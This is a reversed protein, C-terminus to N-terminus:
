LRRSIIKSILKYILNCLSIPYFDAFTIPKECKLILTFFTPNTLKIIKGDNGSEEVERLLDDRVLEFFFMFFEIPWECPGPSKDNKFIKLSFDVKAM